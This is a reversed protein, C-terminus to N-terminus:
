QDSKTNPKKYFYTILIPILILDALVAFILTLSVLLGTYFSGKFQSFVLIMFGASLICSTVIIAKGTSLFARKMAYLSSKGKALELKLKSMFHITDDVAIGFAITFIIATSMKLEIGTYGMIAGILMLPIINPILAIIIMKVSRYLVGMIISIIIFAVSLGEIMNSSLSKNSKDILLSSGTVTSKFVEKDFNADAFANFNDKKKEVAILGLDHMNGSFRAFRWDDSVIQTLMESKKIKKIIRYIKKYVAKNEPVTFYAPLGGNMARHITKVITVPSVINNVEYENMLNNQVRNLEQIVEYDFVSLTSDQMEVALEFPRAGSFHTEFFVFDEKLPDGDKVEDILKSDIRILSIGYASVFVLVISGILLVKKFHLIWRLFKHLNTYWFLDTVKKKSVEPTKMLVLAAPIVLFALAFAVLVGIASYMGFDQIPVIDVTMLTLFGVATTISTLLTALGVEKFTIKIAEIKERGFRLEDLYKTIIHIVDSMGVVLMISPLLVTLIDINKGTAAMVGLSFMVSLLVVTLPLMVGWVSRFALVLFGVIMVSSISFFILFELTIKEVYVVEAVVKGAFHIKDFSFHGLMEYVSTM